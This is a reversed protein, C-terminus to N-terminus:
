KKWFEPFLLVLLTYIELRGFLMCAILIWKSAEPLHAFNDMPGVAGLGPGVNGLTTAVASVSTLIDAGLFSLALSSLAFIGIYLFFLGWIGHLTDRSIVRGGLKVPVVAHPHVLHYLERSAQKILVFVRVCKIAGGTSGACGGIFMLILLCYQSFPPWKEFDATTFGTTTLISVVQFIALRFSKYLDFSLNAWLNYSILLTALLTVFGYFRFESDEWLAKPNGKLFRYHLAFNAGALFTFFTISFELFPSRYFGISENKPSFGGTAMTTFTHCLADFLNMGGAMLVLVEAGSFLVYVEWLIRATHSIRPRLKDPTPGPVEAKYLQMGGVGLFPLVALSLLIIGMGGLWQTLGRWFLVGRATGEINTLVTSGTTTFGSASEFCADALSDFAGTFLYPLAGFFTACIWGCAVIAFGDRHTLERPARRFLLIMLGGSAATVAISYLFGRAHPEAYIWNVLLPIFMTAALLLNLFGLLNLLTSPSV